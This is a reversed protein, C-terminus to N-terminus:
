RCDRGILDYNTERLALDHDMDQPGAARGASVGYNDSQAFRMMYRAKREEPVHQITLEIHWLATLRFRDAALRSSRDLAWQEAAEIAFAEAKLADRPQRFESFRSAQSLSM